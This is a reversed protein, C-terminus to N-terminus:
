ARRAVLGAYSNFGRVSPASGAENSGGRPEAVDVHEIRFRAGTFLELLEGQSVPYTFHREAYLAAREALADAQAELGACAAAARRVAESFAQQQAANFAIPGNDAGGRVRNLTVAIGSPRLLAKWRAVVTPREDQRFRGFFGDSCVADFPEQSDYDRVDIAHVEISASVREAYWRSLALPTECVDIVTVRPQMKRDRFAALVVALMSYDSAGSILIRPSPRQVRAFAERYFAVRSSPSLVLELLRLYQWFGHNWACSIGDPGILCRKEALEEAVPASEALPEELQVAQDGLRSHM